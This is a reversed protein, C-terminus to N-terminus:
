LTSAFLTCQPFSVVHPWRSSSSATPSCSRIQGVLLAGIKEQLLTVSVREIDTETSAKVIILNHGLADAAVQAEQTVYATNADTPNVLLAMVAAKPVLEHLLELQKPMLTGTLVTAGTLNGGPRNLSAVLGLKVPDGGTTFVVPITSTAAKAAVVAPTTM